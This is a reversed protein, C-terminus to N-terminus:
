TSNLRSARAVNVNDVGDSLKTIFDVEQNLAVTLCAASAFPTPEMEQTIQHLDGQCCSVRQMRDLYIRTYFLQDDDNDKYKWQQVITSLESALGIFGTCVSVCTLNM